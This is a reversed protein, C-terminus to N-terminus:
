TVERGFSRTGIRRVTREFAGYATRVQVLFSLPDQSGRLPLLAHPESGRLAPGQPTRRVPLRRPQLHHTRRPPTCVMGVVHALTGEFFNGRTLYIRAFQEGEPTLAWQAPSTDIARLEDRFRAIVHLAHVGSPSERAAPSMRVGEAANLARRYIQYASVRPLDSYRVALTEALTRWLEEARHRIKLWVAETYGTHNKREAQSICWSWIARIRYFMGEPDILEQEGKPVLKTLDVDKLTEAAGFLPHGTQEELNFRVEAHGAYGDALLTQLGDLDSTYPQPDTAYRAVSLIYRDIWIKKM